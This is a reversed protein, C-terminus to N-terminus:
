VQTEVFIDYIAKIAPEFDEDKVGVIVNLESSGQDIMRVNVNAHALAAFIRAATGRNSRMGRGVVAILSLDTELEMYDPNVARHIGAIVQQEKEAFEDQHIFITMTDIGSPVHEFSIGQEELVQLVKRGFGIESNMMSKEIFLSCFGKKGAIGTITYPPKKCTDEVIMTGDEEPANTNKINIPIGAKRVPFIADEHLVTAGMYSLERLERYTITDISKPNNIIRPDTVMVGSVDTWNEYLEVDLAGAIISGTIDSGGRSFTKIEGNEKAGYFGPVVAETVDKLRKAVLAETIEADFQGNGDFRIMEAPDIFTFGLYAAMIKGNLYEGRSAAYEEGIQRKFNEELIKFDEELSLSLELGDIIEQYRSKIEALVKQFIEENAARYCAYLLDTVKTDESFRKGPASPVVYRRTGDARIIAGVKKFQEASALSSGGFKVVKKM